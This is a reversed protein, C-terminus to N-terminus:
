CDKETGVKTPRPLVNKHSTPQYQTMEDAMEHFLNPWPKELRSAMQPEYTYSNLLLYTLSRSKKM